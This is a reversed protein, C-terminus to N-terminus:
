SGFDFAAQKYDEVPYPMPRPLEEGLCDGVHAHWLATTRFHRQCKRCYVGWGNIDLMLYSEIGVALKPEVLQVEHDVPATTNHDHSELHERIRRAADLSGDDAFRRPCALCHWWHIRPKITKTM